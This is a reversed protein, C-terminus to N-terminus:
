SMQSFERDIEKQEPFIEDECKYCLFQDDRGAGSITRCNRTESCWTCRTLANPERSIYAMRTVVQLRQSRATLASPCLGSMAMSCVVVDQRKSAGTVSLWMTRLMLM